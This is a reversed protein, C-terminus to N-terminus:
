PEGRAKAIAADALSEADCCKVYWSTQGLQVGRTLNLTGAARLVRWTEELAELLELKVAREDAIRSLLYDVKVDDFCAPSFLPADDVHVAKVGSEECADSQFYRGARDKIGTYGQNNPAYYLGRKLLLYESM